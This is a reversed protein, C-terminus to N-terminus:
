KERSSLKKVLPCTTKHGSFNRLEQGGQTDWIRVTNDNGVSALLKGDPSFTLSRISDAHGTQVVLEAKQAKSISAFIIFIMLCVALSKTPHKFMYEGSIQVKNSMYYNCDFLEAFGHCVEDRTLGPVGVGYLGAFVKQCAVVASMRRIKVFIQTPLDIGAVWLSLKNSEQSTAWTM